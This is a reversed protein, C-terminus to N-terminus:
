FWPVVFFDVEFWFYSGAGFICWNIFCICLVGIWLYCCFFCM